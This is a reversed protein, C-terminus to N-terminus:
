DGIEFDIIQIRRDDFLVLHKEKIFEAYDEATLKCWDSAFELLADLDTNSPSIAKYHLDFQDKQM